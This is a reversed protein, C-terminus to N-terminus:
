AYLVESGTHRDRTDAAALAATLEGWVQTASLANARHPVVAIVPRGALEAGRVTRLGAVTLRDIVRQTLIDDHARGQGSNVRVVMSGVGEPVAMTWQPDARVTERIKRLANVQARLHARLAVLGSCHLALALGLAREPAGLGLFEHRAGLANILAPARVAAPDTTWGAACLIPTDVLVGPDLCVSQAKAVGALLSRRKPLIAYAGAPADVHLWVGVEQAVSGIGALDDAIGCSDGVVAAVMVPRRGSATDERIARRLAATSMRGTDPATDVWRLAGAGLAAALVAATVTQEPRAALYVTETGALGSTRGARTLAGALALRAFETASSSVFGIGGGM